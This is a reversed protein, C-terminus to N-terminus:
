PKAGRSGEVHKRFNDLIAQWGEAQREPTYVSDPDFRVTVETGDGEARFGVDAGRGDDMEYEIRSHRRVDLYRGAFDFGSRGDRSEMRSSFAGGVRLDVQASPCHWDDNAFNWKTIDEPSVYADWVRDLPARIWAQVTIRKDGAM